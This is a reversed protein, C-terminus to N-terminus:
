FLHLRSVAIDDDSNFDEEESYDDEWDEINNADEQKLLAGGKNAQSLGDSALSHKISHIQQISRKMDECRTITMKLEAYLEQERSQMIEDVEEIDAPPIDEWPSTDNIPAVIAPGIQSPAIPVINSRIGASSLIPSQNTNQKVSAPSSKKRILKESMRMEIDGDNYMIDYTGDERVRVVKGNLWMGRSHYNAEVVEDLIYNVSYRAVPGGIETNLKKSLEEVSMPAANNKQITVPVQNAQIPQGIRFNEHYLKKQQELAQNRRLRNEAEEKRLIEIKEREERLLREQKNQLIRDRDSLQGNEKEERSKREGELKRKQEELREMDRKKKDEMARDLEIKAQKLKEKDERQREKEKERLSERKNKEDNIKMQELKQRSEEERAKQEERAKVELRIEDRRRDEARDKAEQELKLQRKKMDELQRKERELKEKERAILVPDPIPNSINRPPLVDKKVINNNIPTVRPMYAPPNIKGNSPNPPVFKPVEAKRVFAPAPQVIHASPVYKPAASPIPQAVSSPNQKLRQNAAAALAAREKAKFERELRLKELAQEVLRKHEEERKLQSIQEKELKKAEQYNSPASKPTLAEQVAETLNLQQLQQRFAIMNTDNSLSSSVPGGVAGRVIMTGEGISNTPRSMMDVFFNVIHKKIAPKRLIQDVEPRQNHNTSLMESILERLHKSYKQHIPPYRGKIIKGALGNLSNADFAHTLTTMEYLVCGLAWIDSKYSYRENKFIEPSMYYPTGICTQAFETPGDLVKSIGLDGLVLRGNGLLFINQTKLDRHLVKNHHMYQLGLTIQVFWNLIKSESFLDKKALKIQSALDGGDCYEMCICLEEMNKSLFSDIYRVINPHHLRRLLDVEMRTADKEKKQMNKMKIVKVCLLSKKAKDRMLYVKGFSGEGLLRIADYREM